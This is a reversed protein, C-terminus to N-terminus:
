RQVGNRIAILEAAVSVAIEEPTHSGIAVGIPARVRALAAPDAGGREMDAFLKRVKAASGMLGLYRLEHGLLRELVKRDHHHGYTMIVVWSHEGEPVADAVRDWHVVRLEHAFPNDAMTPLGARNDLVAIRFPLTAMVRSLALAVHGGGIITLTDLLGIPLRFTWEKGDRVFSPKGIPGRRFEMGSNSLVLTGTGHEQLTAAVQEIEKRSSRALPLFSFLQRGSCLTGGAEDNHLFEVLEADGGKRARDVLAREAVGGGITGSQGSRTVVVFTGTIGPVSGSHEVVTVLTVPEDADLTELAYRWPEISPTPQSKMDKNYPAGPSPPQLTSRPSAFRAFAGRLM